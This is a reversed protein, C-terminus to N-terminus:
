EKWLTGEMELALDLLVLGMVAELVPLARLAICPDHRGMVRLEASERNSLRVTKQARSISPTPRLVARFTLPMGNTIGGNVGGSHNSATSVPDTPLFPDNAESGSMGSLAFGSGFEIGRVGPVGFALQAVRGEVTEFMPNGWGAPVGCAAIEVIGGVSDGDQRANEIREKMAVAAPDSLAAFEKAALEDLTEKYLPFPLAEDRVDGIQAIHGGLTIKYRASLAQRVLAGAFVIPATLRGSFHGGGRPDSFGGYRLNATFDAHSPRPLDALERYDSSRTDSNEFLACLPAGTTKGEYVGSVVRPVDKEIRQTGHLQGPARRALQKQVAEMDLAIGHPFGDVVVGLATGHSEGWISIKLTNGWVSSM